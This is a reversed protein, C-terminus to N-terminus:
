LIPPWSIQRFWFFQQVRLNCLKKLRKKGDTELESDKIMGSILDGVYQQLSRLHIKLRKLWDEDAHAYSIFIKNKLPRNANMEINEELEPNNQNISPYSKKLNPLSRIISVREWEGTCPNDKIWLYKLKPLIISPSFNKLKNNNIVLKEINIILSYDIIELRNGNM